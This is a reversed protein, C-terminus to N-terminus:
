EERFEKMERMIRDLSIDKMEKYNMLNEQMQRLMRCMLIREGDSFGRFLVDEMQDIHEKIEKVCSKGRETLEIRTIRQDRSDTNRLVFGLKEMKRLAVTMSPPKVCIRDALERQSLAGGNSLVFLIGAQGISLGYHELGRMTQYDILHVMHHLVMQCPKDKENRKEM